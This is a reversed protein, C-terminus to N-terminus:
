LDEVELEALDEDDGGKAVETAAGIENASVASVGNSSEAGPAGHAAIFTEAPFTYAIKSKQTTKIKGNDDTSTYPEDDVLTAGVLKGFYKGFDVGVAKQPIERGELDKLLARLSWLSNPNFSTTHYTAGSGNGAAAKVIRFLWNVYEFAAGTKKKIQIDEVRLLYDGEAVHAAPPGGARDEVGTFDITRKLPGTAAKTPM